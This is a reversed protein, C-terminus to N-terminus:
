TVRQASRRVHDCVARTEIASAVERLLAESAAAFDAPKRGRWSGGGMYSGTWVGLAGDPYVRAGSTFRGTRSRFIEVGSSPLLGTSALKRAFPLIREALRVKRQRRQLEAARERRLERQERHEQQEERARHRVLLQRVDDPIQNQMAAEDTAPM